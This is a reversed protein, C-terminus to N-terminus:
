SCQNHLNVIDKYLKSFLIDTKEKPILTEFTCQAQYKEISESKNNPKIFGEGIAMDAWLQKNHKYAAFLDKDAIPHGCEEIRGGQLGDLDTEIKFDIPVDLGIDWCNEESKITITKNNFKIKQNIKEIEAVSEFVLIVSNYIIKFVTDLEEKYIYLLFLMVWLINSILLIDM